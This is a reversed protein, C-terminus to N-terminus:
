ARHLRAVQVTINDPGGRERALDVLRRCAQEPPHHLVVELIEDSRVMGSLGDSCLILLNDADVKMPGSVDVKVEPSVGLCRTLVHRGAEPVPQGPECRRELEAALSHDCTIQHLEADRAMYARSDGVHGICLHRGSLVAATCTTGMGALAPDDSARQNIVQNARELASKLVACPDVGAGAAFYTEQVTEVALRSAIEGGAAGGMGDAVILLYGAGSEVDEYSGFADENNQRVCGVDSLSAVELRLDDTHDQRSASV